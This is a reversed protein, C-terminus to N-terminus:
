WFFFFNHQLQPELTAHRSQLYSARVGEPEMLRFFFFFVVRKELKTHSELVGKENLGSVALLLSFSISPSWYLRGKHSEGVRQLRVCKGQKM